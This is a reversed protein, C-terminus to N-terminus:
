IPLDDKHADPDFGAPLTTLDEFELREGM